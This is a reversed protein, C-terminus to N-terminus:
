HGFDKWDIVSDLNYRDKHLKCKHQQVCLQCEHTHDFIEQLNCQGRSSIAQLAQGTQSLLLASFHLLYCSVFSLVFREPPETNQLRTREKPQEVGDAYKSVPGDAYLKGPWRQLWGGM